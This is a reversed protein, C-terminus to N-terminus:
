RISIFLFILGALFATEGLMLLVPKFGVEIIQKINTKMGIAAMSTILLWRSLDGGATVVPAPLVGFSNLAMLVAFAVVFGPLLPPREGAQTPDAVAGANYLGKRAIWTAMLIVPLLMAVRTMKVLTAIDGAEPSISYGAGVVQAVDHITAGIFFGAAAPPLDFYHTLIPYLIMCVTSLVSVGIVTFLTAREKLPHNPLAASLAMAASAGCIATAGGSLLGFLSQFGMWKAVVMSCAITILVSCVVFLLPEWGVAGLQGFTIRLGLLAVGVRLLKKASLEIGQRCPGELSLFNMALGILLAYLMVPASYHESLFAACAAVVLSALVGPFHSRSADKAAGVLRSSSHMIQSIPGTSM